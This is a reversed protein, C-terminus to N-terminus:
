TSPNFAHAVVAQGVAESEFLYIFHSLFIKKLYCCITESEKINLQFSDKCHEDLSERQRSWPPGV